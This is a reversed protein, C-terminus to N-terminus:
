RKLRQSQYGSGFSPRGAGARGPAASLRLDSEPDGFVLNDVSESLDPPLVHHYMPRNVEAFGEAAGDCFAGAIQLWEGSTFLGHPDIRMM